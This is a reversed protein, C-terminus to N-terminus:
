FLPIQCVWVSFALFMRKKNNEGCCNELQMGIKDLNQDCIKVLNHFM